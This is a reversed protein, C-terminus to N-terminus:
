IDNGFPHLNNETHWIKVIGECSNLTKLAEVERNFILKQLGSEIKPFCKLIYLKDKNFTKSKASYKGMSIIYQLVEDVEYNIITIENKKSM